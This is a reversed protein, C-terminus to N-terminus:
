FPNDGVRGFFPILVPVSNKYKIFDPNRGWHKENKKELLPIGSVFILLGAVFLPSIIM